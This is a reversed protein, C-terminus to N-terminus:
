AGALFPKQLAEQSIVIIFVLFQWIRIVPNIEIKKENKGVKVFTPIMEPDTKRRGRRSKNRFHKGGGGKKITISVTTLLFERFEKRGGYAM